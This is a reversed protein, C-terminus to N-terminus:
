DLFGNLKAPYATGAAWGCAELTKYLDSDSFRPPTLEISRDRVSRLNNLSGATYLNDVCRPITTEANVRQWRGLFGAEHLTIQALPHLAATASGTPAAPGPSRVTM